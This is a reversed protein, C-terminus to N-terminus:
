PQLGSGPVPHGCCLAVGHSGDPGGALLGQSGPRLQRTCGGLVAGVPESLPRWPGISFQRWHLCPRSKGLNWTSSPVGARGMLSAADGLASREM